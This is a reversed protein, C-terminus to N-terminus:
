GKKKKEAGINGAVVCVKQQLVRKTIQEERGNGKEEEGPSVAGECGCM